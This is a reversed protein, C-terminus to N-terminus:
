LNTEGCFHEFKGVAHLFGEYEYVPKRMPFLYDWDEESIISMVRKVNEKERYDLADGEVTTAASILRTMKADKSYPVGNKVGLNYNDDYYDYGTWLGDKKIGARVQSILALAGLL